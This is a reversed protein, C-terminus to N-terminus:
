ASDRDLNLRNPTLTRSTQIALYKILQEALQQDIMLCCSLRVALYHRLNRAVPFSNSPLSAIREDFLRTIQNRNILNPKVNRALNHDLNNSLGDHPSCTAGNSSNEPAGNNVANNAVSNRYVRRENMQASKTSSGAENQEQESKALQLSKTNLQRDPSRYASSRKTVDVECDVGRVGTEPRGAMRGNLRARNLRSFEICEDLRGGAM